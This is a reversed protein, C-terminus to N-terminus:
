DEKEHLNRFQESPAWLAESGNGEQAKGGGGGGGWSFRGSEHIQELMEAAHPVVAGVPVARLESPLALQM